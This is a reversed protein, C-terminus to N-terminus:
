TGGVRRDRNKWHPERLVKRQIKGVASMPLPDTQVSVHGPKKYSGLQEACLERVEEACADRDIDKTADIVCVAMPTEGWRDDPVAFVAVEVVDPHSLIVNELEAPWINFGGSIIMDDKRDLVYLYGNADVRGIDGTLVYGDASMRDATAEPQEWFGHMQGDCRIAIEGEEGPPMTTSSDEPDRIELYAFPLPRCASRLPSSAEVDSFWENPGMMCVPLAETQGYGQYLVMGFVDRGLLITEDAIPAGGIQIVKLSSWDRDAAGPQRALSNLMAPVAFMYSIRQREMVEITEAPDFHDLLVNTGGSLWTPTYLYGSGHSIPGVHLCRDGVQMPPVNYFWDRGAALWSRHTYAVGKPNGTTGGTHRIIYWDDPNITVDPDEASYSALWEEYGEDRVIVTELHPLTDRIADIEVLYEEAVVVARCETQGLMHRHADRSNRAYLPVRVAGVAAAGAFFDQAGISNDELVGVRDGPRIGAEILANALRIGRSWAEAFTLERNGHIIATRHANLRASQRMLGRVDM